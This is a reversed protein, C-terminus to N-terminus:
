MAKPVMKTKAPHSNQLPPTTACPSFEYYVYPNTATLVNIAPAVPPNTANTTLYKQYSVVDNTASELPTTLPNTATLAAVSSMFGHVAKM